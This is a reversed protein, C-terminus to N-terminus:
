RRSGAASPTRNTEARIPQSGNAAGDREIRGSQKRYLRKYYEYQDPNRLIVQAVRALGQDQSKADAEIQEDTGHCLLRGLSTFMRKPKTDFKMLASIIPIARRDGITVLIDVPRRLEFGFDQCGPKGLVLPDTNAAKQAMAILTPVANTGMAVIRRDLESGEADNHGAIRDVVLRRIEPNIASEDISPFVDTAFVNSSSLLLALGFVFRTKM